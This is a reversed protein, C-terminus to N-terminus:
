AEAVESAWGHSRYRRYMGCIPCWEEGDLVKHLPTGCTHCHGCHGELNCKTKSAAIGFQRFAETAQNAADRLETGM